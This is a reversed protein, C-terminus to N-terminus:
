IEHTTERASTTTNSTRSTDAPLAAPPLGTEGNTPLGAGSKVMVVQFPVDTCCTRSASRFPLGTTTLKQADHHSGHRSSVGIRWAAQCFYWPLPTINTPTAM